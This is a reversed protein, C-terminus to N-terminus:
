DKSSFLASWGGFHYIMLSDMYKEAAKRDNCETVIRRYCDFQM